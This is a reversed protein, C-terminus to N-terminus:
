KRCSYSSSGASADDDRSNARKKPPVCSYNYIGYSVLWVLEGESKREKVCTYRHTHTKNHTTCGLFFWNLLSIARMERGDKKQGRQSCFYCVVCVVKTFLLLLLVRKPRTCEIYRSGLGNARKRIRTLMNTTATSAAVPATPLQLEESPTFLLLMSRTSITVFLACLLGCTM